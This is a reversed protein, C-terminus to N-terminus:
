DRRFTEPDFAGTAVFWPNAFDADHPQGRKGYALPAGDLTDVRGGAARLVADGAATDWEITRGLRPYLDALGEALHCFKLSSGVSVLEEVRYREIYDRTEPSMHSRSAVVRLGGKPATAASISRWPGPAGQADVEARRAGWAEAGPGQAGAYIVGTAPAYVVGCVPRGQEILAINVTFDGNRGVFERTGDLPDVLIFREGIAPAEGRAVSEEAIVPVGPACAKLVRLIIAEAALDAETVPSGDGKQSAAFDPRRYVELIAAGAELAAAKFGDVLADLADRGSM